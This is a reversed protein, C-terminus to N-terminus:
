SYCYLREARRVFPIFSHGCFGTPNSFTAYAELKRLSFYRLGGAQTIFLLTLKWSAYHFTAYAELKRLSFYRLSGAQTIFLLALKWSAYHFTACAELKRLSFVPM